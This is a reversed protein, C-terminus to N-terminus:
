KIPGDFRFSITAGVPLATWNLIGGVGTSVNLLRFGFRNIMVNNIMQTTLTPSIRYNTGIDNYEVEVSFAIGHQSMSTDLILLDPSGALIGAGGAFPTGANVTPTNTWAVTAGNVKDVVLASSPNFHESAIRHRLTGGNNNFEFLFNQDKGNQISRGNITGDAEVAGVVETASGGKYTITVKTSEGLFFDGITNDELYLGDINVGDHATVNDSSSISVGCITNFDAQGGHITAGYLGNLRLGYPNGRSICQTLINCNNNSARDEDFGAGVGIAFPINSGTTRPLNDFNVQATITNSTVSEIQIVQLPLNPPHLILLDSRRIGLGTLDPGGVISITRNLATTTATGTIAAITGNVYITSAGSSVHVIGSNVFFCREFINVGNLHPDPGLHAAAITGNLLIVHSLKSWTLGDFYGGYKVKRDANLKIGSLECDYVGVTALPARMNQDTPLIAKIETGGAVDYKQPYGILRLGNATVQLEKSVLYTADTLLGTLRNAAIDNIFQQLNTYDDGGSPPPATAFGDSM